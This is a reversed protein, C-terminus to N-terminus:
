DVKGEGYMFGVVAELHLVFREFQQSTEVKAIWDSLFDAFPGPLQKQGGSRKAYSVKSRMMKFMPEIQQHYRRDAEDPDLGATLANYRRYLDKFEEFFRRLQASNIKLQQAQQQALTDFLEKPEHNPGAVAGQQQPQKSQQANGHRPGGKPKIGGGQKNGKQNSM